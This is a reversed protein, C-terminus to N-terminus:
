DKRGSIQMDGGFFVFPRPDSYEIKWCRGNRSMLGCRNVQVRNRYAGQQGIERHLPAGFTAGGDDSWSVALRPATATLDGGTVIGTGVVMHFDARSIAARDPFNIINESILTAILPGDGEFRTNEDITYLKTGDIDAGIWKGGSKIVPGIRWRAAGYSKVEHWLSTTVNYVWTWSNCSLSWFMNGRVTYVEARLETKDALGAIAREVDATSIIQPEYGALLRVTSDSAAFILPGAWGDADGAVAHSSALGVPIVTSRSLPFPSTGANQWIELSEEGLGYFQGGYAIGRLFGDPKAEASAFSLANIVTDNLDTAWIGGQRTTFIFFGDIFCVSNPQPLDADNYPIVSTPTAIFAGNDVDVVVVQVGTGRNNHAITIPTSGVLNGTLATKAGSASRTMLCGPYAAYLLGKVDKMGRPGALGMDTSAILGPTPKWSVRKGDKEAYANILRGKGEGPLSGPSSTLAFPIASM